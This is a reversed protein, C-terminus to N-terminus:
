NLEGGWKQVFDHIPLSDQNLHLVLPNNRSQEIGTVTVVGAERLAEVAAIKLARRGEVADLTHERTATNGDCGKLYNIIREEHTAKRKREAKETKESKM